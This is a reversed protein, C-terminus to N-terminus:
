RPVEVVFRAGGGPADEISTRGRHLAVIERVVALGIGTGAIHTGRDRELRVFKQWVSDRESAPIGPGQDEVEMRLCNERFSGRVTITQGAPGYKVANELLNLLVQKWADADIRARLPGALESRVQVSKSRALPAFQEVTERIVAAVDHEALSVELVGREGRSFVLVNEVLHALRRAEQDIIQISRRREADSRVRDLLLTEAFMRIQTLPTRLEHSVGSVFDSRLVGLQRERHLLFVAAALVGITTLLVVAILPLRSRPLGGIILLPAVRPDVASRVTAGRFLEGSESGLTRTIGSAYDYHGPSRFIVRGDRSVEVFLDRNQLKGQGLSPPFVSRRGFARDLFAGFADENAVIGFFRGQEAFAVGYSVLADRPGVRLRVTQDGTARQRQASRPLERLLADHLSPELSAPLVTQARTDVLFMSRVLPLARQMQANAAGDLRPLSWEENLHHLMAQRVPVFGYSEIEGGARRLLEDSAIAAFDRVVREAALRHSRAADAAQWTLVGTLVLAAILLTVLM